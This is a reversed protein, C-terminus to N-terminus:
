ISQWVTELRRALSEWDYRSRALARGAEVRAAAGVPDAWVREIAGVLDTPRDVLLLERGDQVHLGEAGVRTSVVPVGAAFAELIKLRSGGGVRLSVALVSARALFPRVDPVDAHLEVGATEQCRRTLWAPPSRGVLLLRVDPYVRRLRPFVDGLLSAAADQNPRSDLAGVYLLTRPEPRREIAAHAAFDVGNDVVEVRPAGYMTRLRQADEASVAVAADVCSYVRREFAEVKKWQRRVYWRKLANTTTECHRQWISSVVDHATVLLKAGPIARVADAYAIWELQWLDIGQRAVQRIAARVEPSDHSAVTYPLPSFTNLALRAYFGLGKKTVPPDLVPVLRVGRPELETRTADIEAQSAARFIYTIEHRSTLPRLLHLIRLRAGSTAPCCATESVVAVKM